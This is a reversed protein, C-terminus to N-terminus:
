IHAKWLNDMRGRDPFSFNSFSQCDELPAPHVDVLIRPKRPMTSLPDHAQCFAPLGRVGNRVRDPDAQPAAFLTLPRIAEGGFTVWCTVAAEALHERQRM